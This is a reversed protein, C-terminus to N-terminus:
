QGNGQIINLIDMPTKDAKSAVEKMKDGPDASIGKKKLRSLAEDLPVGIEGCIAEVTKQGMGSGQGYKQVKPKAAKAKVAEYLDEPSVNNERAIEKLTQTTSKVNYGKAKFAELIQDVSVGTKSAFEELSLAEAHAQPLDTKAEEWSEKFHEGLEMTSSFPPINWITGLFILLCVIASTILEWKLNVAKRIKSWIWNWFMRWNYYLHLVVIFLLIYGFITHVDIWEDKSLGWIKWNTWNAIRGHPAIYLIIGSLTDVIFSITVVFTTWGRWSFKKNNNKEAM